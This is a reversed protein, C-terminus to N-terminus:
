VSVNVVAFAAGVAVMCSAGAVAPNTLAFARNQTLTTQNM